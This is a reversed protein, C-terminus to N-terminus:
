LGIHRNIPTEELPQAIAAQQWCSLTQWLAESQIDEVQRGHLTIVPADYPMDIGTRAVSTTTLLLCPTEQLGAIQIAASDPGIAVIAEKALAILQGADARAVLNKADRVEMEVSQALPGADRQGTLVPTVGGEVLRQCLRSVSAKPWHFEPGVAESNVSVLAFRGSIGFYGPSLRPPDGLKYRVWGLDPAPLRSFDIGALILQSTLRQIESISGPKWAGSLTASETPGSSPPASGFRPKLARLLTESRKDGDFDYVMDFARSRLERTRETRRRKDDHQIDTVIDDVFPCLKAFAELEPSTVLTIRARPHARRLAELAGLALVFGRLDSQRIALVSSAAAGPNALTSTNRVSRAQQMLLRFEREQGAWCTQM